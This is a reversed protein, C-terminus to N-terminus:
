LAIQGVEVGFGDPLDGRTRGPRLADGHHAASRRAEHAGIFEAQLAILHREKLGFGLQAAGQAEVDGGIAQGPLDQVPLHAEDLLQPGRHTEAGPQAPVHLQLFQAAIEGRDEQGHAAVLAQEQLRAALGQVLDPVAQIKQPGGVGGRGRCHPGPHRDDAAAVGRQIGGAGGQPQAGPFDMEEVPAGRVEHRGQCRLDGRRLPLPDLEMVEGQRHAKQAIAPNLPKKARFVARPSGSAPPRGAGTGTAPESNVRAASVAMMATPWVASKRKKPGPRPKSVEELACNSASGTLRALRMGPTKAPPSRIVPGRVATAAKAAPRRAARAM